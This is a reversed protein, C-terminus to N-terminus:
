GFRSGVEDHQRKGSLRGSEVRTLCTAFHARGAVTPIQHRASQIHQYKRARRTATALQEPRPGTM